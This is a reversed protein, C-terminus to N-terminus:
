PRASDDALNKMYQQVLPSYEEPVKERSLQRIADRDKVKLTGETLASGAVADPGSNGLLGTDQNGGPTGGMMAQGKGAAPQGGPQSGPTGGLAARAQALAQQGKAGSAKAEGGKTQAADLAAAGLAEKAEELAAQADAPLASAALGDLKQAAASFQNAAEALKAADASQMAAAASSQADALAADAQAAANAAAVEQKTAAIEQEIAGAAAALNQAAAAANPAPATLDSAAQGLSQAAAPSLPLADEQTQSVQGALPNADAPTAALQQAQQLEGQIQAQVKELQALRDQPTSAASMATLQQEMEKQVLELAKLAQEQHRGASGDANRQALSDASAQMKERAEQLKQAAQANLGTLNSTLVSAADQINAQDRAQEALSQPTREKWTYDHLQKQDASLDALAQMVQQLNETPDTVTQFVRALDALAARVQKQAASAPEWAGAATQQAAQQALSRLNTKAASALCSQLAQKESNEEQGVEFEMGEILAIVERELATQRTGALQEREKEAEGRNETFIQLSVTTRLNLTQDLLLQQVKTNLERLSNRLRLEQVLSAIENLTQKQGEYASLLAKRRSAEQGAAGASQLSTIVNKMQGDTLDGLKALARDLAAVDEQTAGNQMLEDRIAAIKERTLVTDSRISQQEMGARASLEQIKEGDAAQTNLALLVAAVLHLTPHKMIM